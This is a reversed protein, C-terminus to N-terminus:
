SLKMLESCEKVMENPKCSSGRDSHAKLYTLVMGAMQCAERTTVDGAAPPELKSFDVPGLAASRSLVNPAHKKPAQGWSEGAVTMTMMMLVIYVRLRRM